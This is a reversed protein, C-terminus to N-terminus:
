KEILSLLESIKHIGMKAVKLEEKGYGYYAAVFPLNNANAAELDHIRDGVVIGQEEPYLKLIKAILEPKQIGYDKVCETYTLYEEVQTCAIASDMYLRSCNSYLIVKIHHEHLKKLTDKVGLFGRGHSLMVEELQKRAESRILEWNKYTDEDLIAQYFDEATCGLNAGVCQETVRYAFGLRELALNINVTNFVISDLLTGDVDFIVLSTGKLAKLATM